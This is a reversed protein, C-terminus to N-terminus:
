TQSQQLPIAEGTGSPFMAGNYGDTLKNRDPTLKGKLYADVLTELVVNLSRGEAEVQQKFEGAKETDLRFAIQTRAM